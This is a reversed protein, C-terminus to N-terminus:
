GGSGFIVNVTLSRGSVRELPDRVLRIASLSKWAFREREVKM